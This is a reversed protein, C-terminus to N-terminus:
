SKRSYTLKCFKIKQKTRRRSKKERRSTYNKSNHRTGGETISPNYSPEEQVGTTDLGLERNKMKMKDEDEKRKNEKIEAKKAKAESKLQQKANEESKLQQKANEEAKLQQQKARRALIKKQKVIKIDL